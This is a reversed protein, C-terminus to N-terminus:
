WEDDSSDGSGFDTKDPQYSSQLKGGGPGKASLICLVGAAIGLILCLIVGIGPTINVVGLYGASGMQKKAYSIVVLCFAIPLIGGIIDVVGAAKGNVLLSLLGMLIGLGVPILYILSGEAEGIMENQMGAVLDMGTASVSVSMGMSASVTIVAMFLYALIYLACCIVAIMRFNKSNM